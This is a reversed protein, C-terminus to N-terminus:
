FHWFVLLSYCANTLFLTALRMGNVLFGYDACGLRDGNTLFEFGSGESANTRAVTQDCISEIHTGNSLFTLICAACFHYMAFCFIYATQRFSARFYKGDLPFVKLSIEGACLLVDCGNARFLTRFVYRTNSIWAAFM